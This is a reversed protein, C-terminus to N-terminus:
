RQADAVQARDLDRVHLEVALDGPGAHPHPDRLALAPVAHRDHRPEHRDDALLEVAERRAGAVEEARAAPQGAVRAAIVVAPGLVALAALHTVLARERSGADGAADAAVIQAAGRRRVQRE